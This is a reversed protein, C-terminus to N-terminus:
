SNEQVTEWVLVFNSLWIGQEITLGDRNLNEMACVQPLGHYACFKQYIDTLWDLKSNSM